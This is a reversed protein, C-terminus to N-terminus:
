GHRELAEELRRLFINVQQELVGARERSLDEVRGHAALNRLGAMQEIDKLDQRGLVGSARLAEAYASIGPTRSTTLGLQEVASRLVIELAAGALVISAAPNVTADTNLARVQEMLDTSAVGRLGLADVFAPKIQGSRVLDSWEQIVDGIARAGSEMSQNEGNKEYVQHAAQAWRSTSGAFRELFDLAAAARARISGQATPDAAQWYDGYGHGRPMWVMDKKLQAIHGEAWKLIQADSTM